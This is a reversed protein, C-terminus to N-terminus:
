ESKIPESCDNEMVLPMARLWTGVLGDQSQMCRMKCVDVLM